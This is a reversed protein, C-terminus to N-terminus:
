GGRTDVVTAIQSQKIDGPAPVEAGAYTVLFVAAMVLAFAPLLAGGLGVIWAVAKQWRRKKEVPSSSSPARGGGGHESTWGSRNPGDPGNSM